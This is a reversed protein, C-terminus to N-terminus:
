INSNEITKIIKAPNGGVVTYAPVDKTVVANAAIIAGNGITVGPLITAKDGIWVDNGIIVDGKSYLKRTAPAVQVDCLNTTGHANDTITVWRGTLLNKGIRMHGM